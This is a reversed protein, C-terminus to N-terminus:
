IKEWLRAIFNTSFYNPTCASFSEYEEYTAMAIEQTGYSGYKLKMVNGNVYVEEDDYVTNEVYYWHAENVDGRLSAVKKGDDKIGEYVELFKGDYTQFEGGGIIQITFEKESVYHCKVKVAKNVDETTTLYFPYDTVEHTEEDEVRHHDGNLYIYKDLNAQYIGYIYEKDNEPAGDLRRYGLHEKDGMPTVDDPITTSKSKSGKSSTNCGVLLLATLPLVLLNKKM